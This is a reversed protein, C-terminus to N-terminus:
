RIDFLAKATDHTAKRRIDPPSDAFIEEVADISNPFTGDGHPYDAAWMVNDEGVQPILTVGVKDNQFTCYMNSRFLESPRTKPLGSAHDRYNQCEFDLRELVFPVWGISSEGLVFKLDPHREFLGCMTVQALVPALKLGTQAIGAINLWTWDFRPQTEFKKTRPPLPFNAEIHASVITGSEAALGWLEDWAPDHIPPTAGGVDFMVMRFGLDVIHRLEAVAARVDYTPLVAVGILRPTSCFEATWDNFAHICLGKLEPNEFSWNVFNYIVSAYVNDRDMDELRHKVSSPRWVDPEVEETLGISPFPTMRGDAKKSGYTSWARDERVWILQGNDAAVVRPAENRWKAPVRSQWLDRPVYNLDMHDDASILGTEVTPASRNV